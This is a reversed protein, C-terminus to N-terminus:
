KIVASYSALSAHSANRNHHIIGSAWNGLSFVNYFVYFSFTIKEPKAFLKHMHSHLVKEMGKQTISCVGDGLRPKAM